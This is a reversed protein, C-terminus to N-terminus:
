KKCHKFARNYVGSPSNGSFLERAIYYTLTATIAFGCVVIGFYSADKGARHIKQATSLESFRKEHEVLGDLSKSEERSMSMSRSSHTLPITAFIRGCYKTLIRRSYDDKIATLNQRLVRLSLRYCQM